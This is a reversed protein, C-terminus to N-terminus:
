AASVVKGDRVFESVPSSTNSELEEPTLTVIDLPILYKKITLIEPEKTLAAREFITKGTFDDSIIAVDVDSDQTATGKSYSGFLIIRNVSIGKRKLCSELFGIASIVKNKAM